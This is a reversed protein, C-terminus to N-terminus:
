KILVNWTYFLKASCAVKKNTELDLYSVIPPYHQLDINNDSNFIELLVLIKTPEGKPHFRSLLNNQLYLVINVNDTTEQKNNTEEKSPTNSSTNNVQEFVKNVEKFLSEFEKSKTVESIVSLLNINNLM